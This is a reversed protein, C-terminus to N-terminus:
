HIPIFLVNTRRIREMKIEWLEKSKCMARCTVPIKVGVVENTENYGQSTCLVPVIIVMKIRFWSLGM